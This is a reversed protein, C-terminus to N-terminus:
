SQIVYATSSLSSSSLPMSVKQMLHFLNATLCRHRRICRTCPIYGPGIHTKDEREEGHGELERSGGWLIAGCLDVHLRMAVHCETNASQAVFILSCAMATVLITPLQHHPWSLPSSPFPLLRPWKCWRWPAVYGGGRCSLARPMDKTKRYILGAM